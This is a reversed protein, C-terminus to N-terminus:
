DVTRPERPHNTEWLDRNEGLEEPDILVDFVVVFGIPVPQFM